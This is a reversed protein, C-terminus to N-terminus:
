PTSPEIGDPSVMSILPKLEESEVREIGRACATCVRPSDQLRSVAEREAQAKKSRDSQQATARHRDL